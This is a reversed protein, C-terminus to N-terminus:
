VAQALRELMESLMGPTTAFNLRAFWPDGGFDPGANLAVKARELLHEAAPQELNLAGFDLWALYTGEPTRHRVRPLREHIFADLAQRNTDLQPLVAEFWAESETWAAITARIGMTSPKGRIREPLTFFRERLAPSGFYAVACRVGGLNFTKTASTM